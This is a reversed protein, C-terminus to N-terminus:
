LTDFTSQLFSAGRVSLVHTAAEVIIDWKKRNGKADLYEDDGREIRLIVKVVHTVSLNSKPNTTTFKINSSVDPVSVLGELEWPGLPDLCSPTTDDSSTPNILWAALPSEAIAEPSTSLIPLLPVTEDEHSVKILNFRRVNEQRHTRRNQAYYTVKEELQVVIRFVKVKAM